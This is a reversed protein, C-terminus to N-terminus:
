QQRHHHSDSSEVWFDPPIKGGEKRGHEKNQRIQNIRDQIVSRRILTIHSNDDIQKGPLDHAPCHSIM